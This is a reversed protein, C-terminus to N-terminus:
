NSKPKGPKGGATTDLPKAPKDKSQSAATQDQPEAPQQPPPSNRVRTDWAAPRQAAAPGAMAVLALAVGGILGSISRFM